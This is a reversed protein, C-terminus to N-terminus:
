RKICGFSLKALIGSFCGSKINKFEPLGTIQTTLDYAAIALQLKEKLDSEKSILDDVTTEVDKPILNADKLQKYVKPFLNFALDIQETISMKKFDVNRLVSANSCIVATFTILETPDSFQKGKRAVILQSIIATAADEIQKEQTQTNAM